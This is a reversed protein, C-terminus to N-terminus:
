LTKELAKLDDITDVDAFPRFDLFELMAAQGPHADIVKRGGQDGALAMLEPFLSRDFIAPNRRQGGVVPHCIPMGEAFYGDILADIIGPMLLPQDAALFMAAKCDDDLALIGKKISSSQGERFHDNIVIDLSFGSLLARMDAAQHGLVVIVRSLKSALAALMVRCLVTEGQFSARLKNGSFRSSLGAALIIGTVGTM